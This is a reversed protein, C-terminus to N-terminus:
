TDLVDCLLGWCQLAQFHGGVRYQKLRGREDYVPYSGCSDSSVSIHELAAEQDAGAPFAALVRPLAGLAQCCRFVFTLLSWTVVTQLQCDFGECEHLLRRETRRLHAHKSLWTSRRM